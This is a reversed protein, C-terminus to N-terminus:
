LDDDDVVLEESEGAEASGSAVSCVATDTMFTDHSGRRALPEMSTNSSINGASSGSSASATFSSNFSPPAIPMNFANAGQDLTASVPAVNTTMPVADLELAAAAIAADNQTEMSSIQAEMSTNSSINGTDIKPKDNTDGTTMTTDDEEKEKVGGSEVLDAYGPPVETQTVGTPTHIFYVHGSSRSVKAEWEPPLGDIVVSRARFRTAGRRMPMPKQNYSGMAGRKGNGLQFQHYSLLSNQSELCLGAAITIDWNASELFFQAEHDSCQFVTKFNNVLDDRSDTTTLKNLESLLDDINATSETSQSSNESRKRSSSDM